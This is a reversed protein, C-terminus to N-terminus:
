KSNLFLEIKSGLEYLNFDLSKKRFEKIYSDINGNTLLGKQLSIQKLMWSNFTYKYHTLDKYNKIEDVFAENGWAYIKLNPYKSSQNVLYKMTNIYVEFDPKNYQAMLAYKIRSYPPVILIFETDQYDLISSILYKDLYQKM